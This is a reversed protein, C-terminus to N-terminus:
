AYIYVHYLDVNTIKIIEMNPVIHCLLLELQYKLQSRKDDNIM